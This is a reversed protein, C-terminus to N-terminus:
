RAREGEPILRRAYRDADAPRDWARYLAVFHRLVRQTDPPEDPRQGRLVDLARNLDAEAEPYRRMSTLVRSRDTYWIALRAHRTGSLRQQLAIADLFLKDAERYRGIDALMNALDATAGAYLAHETGVSAGYDALAERYLTESEVNRHHRHLFAALSAKSEGVQEHRPGLTALRISLIDRLLKEAEGTHGQMEVIDVLSNMAHVLQLSREGYESRQVALADRYLREAEGYRARKLTLLDALFIQAEAVSAHQPGHAVQRLAIAERLTSESEDIKGTRSLATALPILAATLRDDTAPLTRRLMAVSRRYYAESEAVRGLYPMLFGLLGLTEAIAPDDPGLLRQKMDLSAHYLSEARAYMSMGRYHTGLRQLSLAVDIHVPGFTSRRLALARTLLREADAHRGLKDYIEGLADFMRAQLGPQGTLREAEATGRRLIERAAITDVLASTPDSAGVLGLLFSTVGDSQRMAAEARQRAARAVSAQWLVVGLGATLFLVVLGAAAVGARHRAAFKSARYWVSDPRALVPRGDLYRRIDEALAGASDYRRGPEKALAKLSIVDLDGRISRRLREGSMSGSADTQAVASPPKATEECVVRVMEAPALGTMEHPRRGTLLEYLVVGLAYIDTLTSMRGRRLQEPSAYALTVWPATQTADLSGDDELVKALGFDLLKPRGDKAVLINGPKLDRHVVLQQHAYHVADCVAAFLALRRRLSLGHTACYQVLDVGEIYEMAVFPQGSPTSGGDIFRAIGPHELKALIRREELLRTELSSTAFGGRILKLAVTQTFGDGSREALYVVGMGGEGLKRLLRYPGVWELTPLREPENSLRGLPGSADHATLLALVERRLPDDEASYASLRAERERPELGALQHFLEEVRDWQVNTTM